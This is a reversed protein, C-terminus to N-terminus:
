LFVSFHFQRSSFSGGKISELTTAIEFLNKSSFQQHAVLPTGDEQAVLVIANASNTAKRNGAMYVVPKGNEDEGSEIARGEYRIAKSTPDVYQKTLVWDGNADIMTYHMLSLPALSASKHNYIVGYGKSLPKGDFATENLTDIGISNEFTQGKSVNQLGLILLLCFLPTQLISISRLSFLHIENKM